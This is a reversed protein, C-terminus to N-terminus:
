QNYDIMAAKFQNILANDAEQNTSGKMFWEYTSEATPIFSKMYVFKPWDSKIDTEFYRNRDVEGFFFSLEYDEYREEDTVGLLGELLYGLTGTRDSGYVCHFYINKGQIVDNMANIVAERARNYNNRNTEYDIQYHTISDVVYSDSNGNGFRIDNGLEGQGSVVIEKNVGLQELIVVSAADTRLREGRFIKGYKLEGDVVGDYNVDVLLGGLDRTNRIVGTDLTRRRGVAKVYGNKNTNATSEWYYTRGPIMNYIIGNSSNTYGVETKTETSEDYLYVKISGNVKTDYGLSKDCYVNGSAYGVSSDPNLNCNHSEFNERMSNLFEEKGVDWSVVNNFYNKMAANNINFVKIDQNNSVYVNVTQTLNSNLGKITITTEGKSVGTVTGNNDVIAISTDASSYTIQEGLEDLNNIVIDETEGSLLNIETNEINLSNASRSWIAYLTISKNPIYNENVKIGENLGVYWGEFIYGTRIPVPLEGINQNSDLRRATESVTGGNPNFKVTIRNCNYNAVYSKDQTNGSPITVYLEPTTGNSGTWGAFTCESNVLNPNYLTYSNENNETLKLVIGNLDGKFYRFPLSNGDLAAGFTLPSNFNKSLNTLDLKENNDIYLKDEKREVKVKSILYTSTAFNSNTNSNANIEYRNQNRRFVIGPWPSASEDMISFITNLGENPITESNAVSVNLSFDNHVYENAFLELNTNMYNTGDFTFDGYDYTIQYDKSNEDRWIATVTMNNAPM